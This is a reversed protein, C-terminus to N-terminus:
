KRYHHHSSTSKQGGQSFKRQGSSSQYKKQDKHYNSPGKSNLYKGSSSNSTRTSTPRLGKDSTSRFKNAPDSSKSMSSSAKDVSQATKVREQLDKGFLFEDIKTNEVAKLVVPNVHYAVASRRSLSMYYHLDTGLKAADSLHTFNLTLTEDKLEESTKNELLGTMAKGLATLLAGLQKQATEKAGDKRLCIATMSKASKIKTNLIPAKLGKCNAPVPHKKLLEQRDDKRIGESCILDWRTALGQEIVPGLPDEKSTVAGFLENKAKDKDKKDGSSSSPSVSASRSTSPSGSKSSSVSTSNSSSSSSRSHDSPSRSPDQHNGWRTQREGSLALSKTGSKVSRKSRSSHKHHNGWRKQREVSLAPSKTRSKKSRKSRPPQEHRGSRETSHHRKRSRSSKETSGHRKSSRVEEELRKLKTLLDQRSLSSSKRKRHKGPM